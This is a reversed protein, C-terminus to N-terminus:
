YMNSHTVMVVNTALTVMVITQTALICVEMNYPSIGNDGIYHQVDVTILGNGYMRITAHSCHHIYNDNYNSIM